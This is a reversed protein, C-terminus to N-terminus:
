VTFSSSAISVVKPKRRVTGKLGLVSVAPNENPFQLWLRM